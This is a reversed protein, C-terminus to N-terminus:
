LKGELVDVAIKRLTEKNNNVANSIFRNPAMMKTGNHVWQGYNVNTGVYVYSKGPEGMPATGSYKGKKTTKGKEKDASYETINPPKGSLAYTISNRLLGTDIRVPSKALEIKAQKEIEIGWNELVIEACDKLQDLIEDSNDIIKFTM